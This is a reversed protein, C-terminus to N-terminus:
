RRPGAIAVSAGRRFRASALAMRPAEKDAVRVSAAAARPSPESVTRKAAPPRSSIHWLRTVKLSLTVTSFESPQVPPHRFHARRQGPLM